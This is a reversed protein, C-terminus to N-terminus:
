KAICRPVGGLTMQTRNPFQVVCSTSSAIRRSMSSIRDNSFFASAASNIRSDGCHRIQIGDGAYERNPLVDSRQTALKVIEAAGLCRGSEDCGKVLAPTRAAIRGIGFAVERDSNTEPPSCDGLWVLSLQRWDISLMSSSVAANM